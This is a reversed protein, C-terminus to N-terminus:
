IGLVNREEEDLKAIARARVAHKREAEERIEKARELASEFENMVNFDGSQDFENVIKGEPRFGIKFVHTDRSFWAGIHFKGNTVQISWGERDASELNKMLRDPWEARLKAELKEQEIKASAKAEARKDAATPKNM